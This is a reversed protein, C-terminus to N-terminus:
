RSPRGHRSDPAGLPVGWADMAPEALPLDVARGIAASLAAAECFEMYRAGDDFTPSVPTGALIAQVFELDTTQHREEDPPIPIPVLATEDGTAGRLEEQFLRYVLAGRSGYIEISHGPGLAAQSSLHCSFTAGNQLGGSVSVSDPVTADVLSGDVATRRGEHTATVAAVRSAPGVWRHLVEAWMGLTMTNVGVVAPDSTWRYGDAAPARDMGTVRVERITGVYGDDLLRRVVRDGKLGPRPPYLAAVRGSARAADLMRRAETLNRAMRGQCLVHRGSELAAISVPVHLSPPTAVIVADVDAASVISRWDDVVAPIDFDAAVRRAKEPDRSWIVRVQADPTGRLAPLHRNRVVWGAGVIGFRVADM